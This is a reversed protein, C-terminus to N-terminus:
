ARELRAALFSLFTAQRDVIRKLPDSLRVKNTMVEDTAM